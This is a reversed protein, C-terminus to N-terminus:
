LIARTLIRRKLDAHCGIFCYDRFRATCEIGVTPIANILLALLEFLDHTMNLNVEWDPHLDDITLDFHHLAMCFVGLGCVVIKADM